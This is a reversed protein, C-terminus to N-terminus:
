LLGEQRLTELLPSLQSEYNRWREISSKYMPQRVQVKSATAVASDSEHFNLCDDHWPLKCYELLRETWQAQKQVLEEYPVNLIREGYMGSWFDMLRRYIAFYRGLETLDDSFEHGVSFKQEFCSFCTAVPDREVHIVKANPFASFIAGIFRFNSLTKDVVYEKKETAVFARYYRALNGWDRGSFRAILSESSGSLRQREGTAQIAPGLEDIEGLAKVEPHRGLIAEVLTSGSRPMGVIFIPGREESQSAAEALATGQWDSLLRSAEQDFEAIKSNRGVHKLENAKLLNDFAEDSKKQASLIRYLAFHLVSRDNASLNRGKLLDFMNGLHDNSPSFHQEVSLNYYAAVENPSLEIAREFLRKAEEGRGLSSELLGIDNLWHPNEPDLELAERAFVLADQVRGQQALANKLGVFTDMNVQLRLAARFAAEADRYFGLSFLEEGVAMLGNFPPGKKVVARFVRRAEMRKQDAALAKGLNFRAEIFDPHWKLTRRFLKISETFLGLRMLAVGLGNLAFQDRPAKKLLKEFSRKAESFKGARLEEAARMHLDPKRKAHGPRLARIM